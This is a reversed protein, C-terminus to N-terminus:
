DLARCRLGGFGPHRRGEGRAPDGSRDAAADGVVRGGVIGVDPADLAVPAHQLDGVPAAERDARRSLRALAIEPRHLVPAFGAAGALEVREGGQDVAPRVVQRGEALCEVDLEGDLRHQRSFPDVPETPAVWPDGRRASYGSASSEKRQASKCRAYAYALTLC